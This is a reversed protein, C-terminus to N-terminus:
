RVTFSETFEIRAGQNSILNLLWRNGNGITPKAFPYDRKRFRLDYITQQMDEVRFCPHSSNRDDVIVYEINEICDPLQLYIFNPVSTDEKKYRWMERFGLIDRYLYNAKEVDSIYLGAHHLRDAVRHKGLFRRESLRHLGDKKFSIFELNYFETSLILLAENGARDPKIDQFVSIGNMKLYSRLRPLDDCEFSVSLLTCEPTAHRNETFELFQHDNIKFVTIPGLESLYSFAEEFGLFGGYYDRALEINNVQFTMKAIGWIEPRESANGQFFPFIGILIISIGLIVKRM